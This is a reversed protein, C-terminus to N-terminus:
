ACAQNGISDPIDAKAQVLTRRPVRVMREDPGCSADMPLLHAAEATMDIGIIAFDGDALEFIDPCGNLAITKGGNAHPDSGLRRKIM